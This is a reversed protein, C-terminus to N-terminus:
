KKKALEHLLLADEPSFSIDVVNKGAEIVAELTNYGMFGPVATIILDFTALFDKYQRYDTLDNAAIKIDPNRQQVEELNEKNLDFCTVDHDKALDLAIAKGVM